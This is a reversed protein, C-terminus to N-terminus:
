IIILLVISILALFKRTADKPNEMYLVMADAFLPLKVEEKGIQIGKLIKNRRQNSHSPSGFSHQFHHSHAGLKRIWSLLM